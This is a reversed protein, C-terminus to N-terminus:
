GAERKIRALFATKEAKSFGIWLSMFLRKRARIGLVRRGLARLSAAFYCELEAPSAFDAWHAADARIDGFAAYQPRGVSLDDMAASMVQLADQPECDAISLALCEARYLRLDPDPSLPKNM